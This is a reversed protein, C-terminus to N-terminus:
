TDLIFSANAHGLRHAVEVPSWPTRWTTSPSANHAAPTNARWLNGSRTRRGTYNLWNAVVKAGLREDVYTAFIGQVVAAEHTDGTLTKSASDLHYGYPAPRRAM